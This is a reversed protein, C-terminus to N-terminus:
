KQSIIIALALNKEGALVSGRWFVTVTIKKLGTNSDSHNLEADLYEAVTQREYYYFPNEPDEALRQRSEIVGLPINDYDLYFMEEIKAQALNTAVTAKEATQNLTLATPFLRALSLIGVTLIVSAILAEILTLGQNNLPQKNKIIGAFM